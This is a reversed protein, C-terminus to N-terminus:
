SIPNWTKDWNQLRHSLVEALMWAHIQSKNGDKQSIITARFIANFFLGLLYQRADSINTCKKALIRITSITKLLKQTEPDALMPDDLPVAEINKNQAVAICLRLCAHYDKQASMRTILDSELEIFDQLAHGEGSREFDVVWGNQSEDILLNDAHLDGHTIAVRTKEVRSPDTDKGENAVIYKLWEISNSQSFDIGTIKMLDPIEARYARELWQDEWIKRYLTLLSANELEDSEKCKDYHSSWTEEFFHKLSLEIKEFPEAQFFNAFTRHTKGIYKFKVGGIDWLIVNSRLEPVYNGVLRDRMYKRFCDIEKQVKQARAFKIIVPQLDDERVKLVVSRPRPATLFETSAADANIKELDLKVAEPFLQALIDAIQDYCDTPVSSDFLTKAISELMNAPIISLEKREKACLKKAAKQLKEKKVLSSVEKGIFSEAGKERSEEARSASGHGSIIIVAAPKIDPILDLGSTDSEDFNDKLRMDVLAIQCRQEKAMKKADALLAAGEGEACVPTYGWHSVLDGMIQAAKKDNDVILVRPPPLIFATNM